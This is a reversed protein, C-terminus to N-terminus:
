PAREGAFCIWHIDNDMGDINHNTVEEPKDANHLAMFAAPKIGMAHLARNMEVTKKRQGEGNRGARVRKPDKLVLMDDDMEKGVYKQGTFM